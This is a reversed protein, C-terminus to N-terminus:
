QPADGSTVYFGTGITYAPKEATHRMVIRTGDALDTEEVHGRKLRDICEDTLFIPIIRKPESV